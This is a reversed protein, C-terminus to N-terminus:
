RGWLYTYYPADPDAVVIEGPQIGRGVLDNVLANYILMREPMGTGVGFWADWGREDPFGLGKYPDYRLETLEPILTQLQLAGNVVDASVQVNAELPAEVLASSVMIRLLDPRDERLRMVRGQLDLWVAVGGQQWVLAPEREEVIIQVANPPWDIYVRVDAVSTSRMINQRIEEPDLWFLHQNGEGPVVIGSLAFIEEETMYHLGGVSITRVYFADFTFFLTLIVILCVVILASVLRWAFGAPRVGHEVVPTETEPATTRPRLIAPTRGSEKSSARRQRERARSSM